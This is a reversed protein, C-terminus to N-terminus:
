NESITTEIESFKANELLTNSKAVKMTFYFTTGDNLNTELWIKGNHNEIIKKCITLGIGTGSQNPISNIKTFLEFVKEKDSEDLGIGNDKVSWLIINKNIYEWHIKIHPYENTKKFKIANLILNSFVQEILSQHGLIKPFRDPIIITANSEEIKSKLNRIVNNFLEQFNLIHKFYKGNNINSLLLIGEIMSQLNHTMAIITSFNEKDSQDFLDKHKKEIMQLYGNITTLPANMDHAAMHAFHSLNNNIETLKSIAVNLDTNQRLIVENKEDLCANLKLQEEHSQEFQKLVKELQIKQGILENQSQKVKHYLQYIYYLLAVSIVTSIALILLIIKNKSDNEKKRLLQENILQLENESYKRITTNLNKEDQNIKQSLTILQNQWSIIDKYNNKISDIHILEKLSSVIIKTYYDNLAACSIIDITKVLYKRQLELNSKKKAQKSKFLYILSIFYRKSCKEEYYKTLQNFKLDIILDSTDFKISSLQMFRFDGEQINNKLYEGEYYRMLNQFSDLQNLKAYCHLINIYNETRLYNKNSTLKESAELSIKAYIKAKEYQELKIYITNINYASKVIGMFLDSKQCLELVESQMALSLENQDFYSSWITAERTKILCFLELYKKQYPELTKLANKYQIVADTNNQLKTLIQGLQFYLLSKTFPTYNTFASTSIIQELVNKYVDPKHPNKYKINQTHLFIELDTNKINIQKQISDFYQMIQISDYNNYELNLFISNVVDSKSQWTKDSCGFILILHITFFHFTSNYYSAFKSM